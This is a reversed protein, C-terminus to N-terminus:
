EKAMPTILDLTEQEIQVVKEDDLKSLISLTKDSIALRSTNSLIALLEKASVGSADDSKKIIDMQHPFLLREFLEGMFRLIKFGGLDIDGWHYFSVSSNLAIDLSKFVSHWRRSPFGNTYIILGGDDIERCYREFTTKNEIFLVYSPETTVIVDKIADPPIGIFPWANDVCLLGKTTKITLNGKMKLSPPFRYLGWYALVADPKLDDLEPTEPKLLNSITLKLQELWKSDKFLKVSLTRYDISYNSPQQHLYEIVRLADILKGYSTFDCGFYRKGKKWSNSLEVELNEFRSPLVLRADVVHRIAESIQDAVVPKELYSLFDRSSSIKIRQLLEHDDFGRPIFSIDLWSVQHTFDNLYAHLSEREDVTAEHHFKFGSVSIPVNLSPKLGQPKNVKGALNDFLTNIISTM